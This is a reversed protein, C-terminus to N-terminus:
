VERNTPLTLHTYSVPYADPWDAEVVVASFNKEEILRRTIRAREQYFEQTGHSAEGILVFQADGLQAFLQDDEAASGSLGHTIAQLQHLHSTM